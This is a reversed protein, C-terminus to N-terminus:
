AQAARDPNGLDIVAAVFGEEEEAPLLEQLALVEQRAREGNGCDAYRLPSKLAAIVAAPLLFRPVSGSPRGMMALM